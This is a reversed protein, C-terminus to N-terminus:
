YFLIFKQLLDITNKNLSQDENKNVISILLSSYIYLEYTRICFFDLKINIRIRTQFESEYINIVKIILEIERIQCYNSEFNAALFYNEKVLYVSKHNTMRLFYNLWNEAAM